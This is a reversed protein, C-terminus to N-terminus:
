RRIFSTGIDETLGVAVQQAIMSIGDSVLVVSRIGRDRAKREKALGFEFVEEFLVVDDVSRRKRRKEKEEEKKYLLFCCGGLDLM